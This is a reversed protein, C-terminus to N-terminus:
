QEDSRPESSHLDMKQHIKSTHPGLVDDLLIAEALVCHDKEKITIDQHNIVIRSVIVISELSIDGGM